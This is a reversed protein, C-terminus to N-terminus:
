DLTTLYWFLEERCINNDTVFYTVKFDNLAEALADVSEIDLHNTPEDLFLIHPNRMCIDTMVVRSKQGGSLLKIPQLHTMGLKESSQFFKNKGTLGFRGLKPRLEDPKFEPFQTNLYEVPTQTMDLKDVFHQTFRGFICKRNRAISGETPQLEGTLLKIL